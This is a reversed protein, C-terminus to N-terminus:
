FREPEPLQEPLGLTKRTKRTLSKVLDSAPISRLIEEMTRPQVTGGQSMVDNDIKAQIAATDRKNKDLMAKVRIYVGVALLVAVCGGVSYGIIAAMPKTAEVFRIILIGGLSAAITGPGFRTGGTFCLWIGAIGGLVCLGTVWGLLAREWITSKLDDIQKQLARERDTQVKILADTTTNTAKLHGQLDVLANMVLNPAKMEEMWERITKLAQVAAATNEKPNPDPKPNEAQCGGLYLCAFVVLTVIALWLEPYHKRM